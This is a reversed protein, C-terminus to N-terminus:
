IHLLERVGVVAILVGFVVFIIRQARTLPYKKKHPGATGGAIGTAFFGILILFLGAILAVM